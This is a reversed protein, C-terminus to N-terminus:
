AALAALIIELTRGLEAPTHRASIFDAEFQAPSFYVGARLLKHYFRAFKKLSSTQASRYDRAKAATFFLTFMAGLHNLQVDPPLRRSLETFFYETNKQLTQYTRPKQLERLVALGAAMAPPNGALTGAQYVPGEPAILSMLEEKGGYAAAPLGGGIIKGLCTLDPTVGFYNQAGGWGLRFGTIVEDFILVTKQAATLERLFALYGAEPLVVGMNAPVPEIILAAIKNKHRAFIKEMAPRDNFPARLIEPQEAHGHYGGELMVIKRRGTYYRALKLASMTAETGSSVLRIKELSPIASALLKALQTELETPAGFSLGDALTRRVARVVAPPNHGLIHVGWSLCFDLYKRGDVDWLYAGAGRRIFPPAGGVARFSRVPSNVGGPLYRKAAAFARASRSM